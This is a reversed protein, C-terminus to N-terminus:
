RSAPTGAASAQGGGRDRGAPRMNAPRSDRRGARRRVHAGGDDLLAEVRQARRREHVARLQEAQEVDVVVLRVRPRASSSSVIAARAVWALTAMRVAWFKWCIAVQAAWSWDIWCSPARSLWRVLTCSIPMAM